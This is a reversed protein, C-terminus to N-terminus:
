FGMFYYVLLKSIFYSPVLALLTAIIQYKTAKKEDVPLSGIFKGTQGNMIFTYTKGQYKNTLIWVPAMCYSVNGDLKNIDCKELQVRDFGTVTDQLVDASTQRIRSDVREVMEEAEVDYKDALYGAMYTTNFDVMERYDFPEISEMWTDDMKKSGDAPILNYKMAGKRYCDYYRTEKVRYDGENHERIIEACFKASANVKSDFLWFPVYMGQINELRNETAFNDPLLWKGEYFKRFAAKAEEKTKKFPIIYDPKLGKISDFRSAIMTPNGCYCCETAMTNNDCVIEAGCSSCTMARMIATDEANWENGADETKWKSEQAEQAEAAANDLEGYYDELDKATFETECYECKINAGSGPKYNLPANCSPCKYSTSTDAM